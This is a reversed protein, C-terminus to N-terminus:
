FELSVSCLDPSTASLTPSLILMFVIFFLLKDMNTTFPIKKTNIFKEYNIIYGFIFRM